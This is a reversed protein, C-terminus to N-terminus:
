SRSLRLSYVNVRSSGGPSWVRLELNNGFAPSQVIRFPGWGNFERSPAAYSYSVPFSVTVRGNTDRVARRRLLRSDDTDWVEINARGRVSLNVSVTFHGPEERFYANDTVYGANGTGAAHWGAPPGSRVPRGATGAVTWGPITFFSGSADRPPTDLLEQRETVNASFISSVDHQGSPTLELRTTGRTPRWLFAWVASKGAVLRSGPLKAMEGIDAYISDPQEFETGVTPTLIVWVRRAKVPVASSANLLTYVYKRQAFAGVVGNEAIVEDGPRIQQRVAALVKASSAPVDDLWESSTQPLWVAAWGVADLMLLAALLWVVWRRRARYRGALTVLAYVSGVAVLPALVINQFSPVAQVHQAALAGELLVVASLILAQPWFVGILGAPAVVAWLDVKNIRLQHLVRAPHTLITTVLAIGSFHSKLAGGLALGYQAAIAPGETAHIETLVVVWVLGVVAVLLGARWWTRGSLALGLGLAIAYTAAGAGSVMTLGIWVWAAKQHGRHFERAAAVVFLMAFTESHVDFGVAWTYWPNLLLLAIGTFAVALLLPVPRGRKAHLAVVDFMWLMAVVQAATVALVQWLKLVMLHTGARGILALPWFILEGDNRWFQFGWATAFPNLDGHDILYTAQTYLSYDITLWFRRVQLWNLVCFLAAEIVILALGAVLAVSM